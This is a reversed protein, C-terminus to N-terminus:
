FKFEKYKKAKAAEQQQEKNLKRKKASAEGSPAANAPGPVKIAATVDYVHQTGMMGDGVEVNKQPLITYLSPGADNSELGSEVDKTKRLEIIDPTELGASVSQLGSPTELGEVPTVVGTEDQPQPPEEEKEEESESESDSELAGWLTVDTPELDEDRKYGTYDVGFVDGYLPQGQENVPPKGWGGPHYGFSCGAPIPANLGPIKLNPYSPPPGYRQMAILWPPPIMNTNTPM